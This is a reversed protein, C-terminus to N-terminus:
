KRAEEGVGSACVGKGAGSIKGVTSFASSGGVTKGVGEGVRGLVGLVNEHSNQNAIPM